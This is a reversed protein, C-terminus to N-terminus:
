CKNDDIWTESFCIISFRYNLTSYFEKFDESNKNISRINLHLVSFSKESFNNFKEQIENPSYCHTDLSSVDQFFNVDPDHDNNVSM